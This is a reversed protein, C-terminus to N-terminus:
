CTVPLSSGGEGSTADILDQLTLEGLLENIAPKVSNEIKDTIAEQNDNIIRPVASEIIKNVIITQLRSPLLKKFDSKVSKITTVIRLDRIQVKDGKLQVKVTGNVALGNVNFKFPGSRKFPIFGLAKGKAAYKGASRISDFFFAFDLQLKLAKIEVKRIEFENLGDVVVKNLEGKFSLGKEDVDFELHDLEFPALVPIGLDPIGCPMSQKINELFDIVAQSLKDNRAAVELDTTTTPETAVITGVTALLACAVLVCKM